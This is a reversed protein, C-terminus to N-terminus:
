SQRQRIIEYLIIATSVSVNLSDVKGKMPISVCLDSHKQWFDSLGNEESGMVLALPMTLDAKFYAKEAQPLTACVTIKNQKLFDFTEEKSAQVVAVSFIAGLSSRIVNPNYIDTVPDCVIIGDIGVADATRLIAGLNGPKEVSEVVVLLPKEKLSLSALKKCPQPCVALVGEHRHGFTIKEFVYEPLVFVDKSQVSIEAIFRKQAPDEFFKQEFYLEAFVVGAQQALSLERLGEVIMLGTEDRVRRERLDVVAKVQPNKLSTIEKINPM